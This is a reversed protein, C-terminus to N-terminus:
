KMEQEAKQLTAAVDAWLQAFAKQEEEPLKALAAKDRIGALDADKQWYRLAQQAETHDAPKDGEQQKGRLDLDARLWDLARKRLRSREPDDLRAADEGRGAPRSFLVCSPLVHQRVSSRGRKGIKERDGPPNQDEGGRRTEGPGTDQRGEAPGGQPVGAGPQVPLLGLLLCSGLLLFGGLILFAGVLVVLLSLLPKPAPPM